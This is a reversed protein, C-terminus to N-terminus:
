QNRSDEPQVGSREIVARAKEPWEGDVAVNDVLQNNLYDTWSGNIRGGKHWNGLATNDMATRNPLAVDQSNLNLWITVNDVVNNRVTMYRSGEDLYLAIGGPVDHIYNEAILGGPDASLHYIAGGDPFWRKVDSIRNGFIVSDRLITPTDYILNGPQDYYGRSTTRYAASGGPDNTGWGWGVDIGDYSAGSIDNHMIIPATAYTVLIAAQERYNQSVNEIVNNRILINRNAMEPRSPHHADPTVGGAMIAGGALDAFRNRTIEIGTAGLGVGSVNADANNGIGLAVQGLHTFENNSFIVRTAAAVQVAAPQQRWHNRTTEFAWCGWSCDRIPNDPYNAVEGALYAGSQQSPYGGPGSPELWSTYRFSIGRFHLDAVPADYDGAISILAEVRPLIVEIAAMSEGDRPKYYLLGKPSDAFWQGGERLFALSNVFFLHADDGQIPRAITDYGIINNRWGPQQMHIRSGDIHDVMAHRHTFWGTNEVEIHTQAPLSGLFRWAPDVIELGWEHFSFASRPAEVQAREALAENVWLQRSNAGRPIDAVWIQREADALSWGTVPIGGSIVPHAGEAAQWSVVYGDRGGDEATFRLPESLRYVGDALEVTVSQDANHRRVAEQVRQLTKFPHAGSGDGRDSGQPSVHLILPEPTPRRPIVISHLLRDPPGEQTPAPPIEPSPPLEQAFSTPRGLLTLTLAFIWIFKGATM